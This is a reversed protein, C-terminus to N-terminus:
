EKAYGTVKLDKVVINGESEGFKWFRLESFYYLDYKFNVIENYKTEPILKGNVFFQIRSKNLDLPYAEIVYEIHFSDDKVVHEGYTLEMKSDNQNYKITFESPELKAGVGSPSRAILYVSFTCPDINLNDKMLGYHVPTDDQWFFSNIDEDNEHIYVNDEYECMINCLYQDLDKEIKIVDNKSVTLIKTVFDSEKTDHIYSGNYNIIPTDLGLEDYFKKSSRYPRGTAILFKYGEKQYKKIIEVENWICVAGKDQKRYWTMVDDYCRYVNTVPYAGKHVDPLM